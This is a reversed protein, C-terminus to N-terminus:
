EAHPAELIAIWWEAKLGDTWEIADETCEFPGFFQLGDVPNGVVVIQQARINIYDARMSIGGLTLTLRTLASLHRLGTLM